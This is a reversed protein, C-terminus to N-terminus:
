SDLSIVEEEMGVDMGRNWTLDLSEIDIDFVVVLKGHLWLCEYGVHTCLDCHIVYCHFVKRTGFCSLALERSM